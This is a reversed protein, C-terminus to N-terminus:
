LRRHNQERPRTDWCASSVSPCVGGRASVGWASVGRCVGGLCVSGGVAVAASPVCGVPICEQKSKFNGQLKGDASLAVDMFYIHQMLMVHYCDVINTMNLNVM